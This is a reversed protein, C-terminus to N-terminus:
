AYYPSHRRVDVAARGAEAPQGTSGAILVVGEASRGSRAAADAIREHVRALNEAIRTPGRSVPHPTM